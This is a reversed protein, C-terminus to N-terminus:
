DLLWLKAEKKLEAKLWQISSNPNNYRRRALFERKYERKIKSKSWIQFCYRRNDALKQRKHAALLDILKNEANVSKVIEDLIEYNITIPQEVRQPPATLIATQM